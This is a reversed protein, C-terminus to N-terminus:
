YYFIPTKFTWLHLIKLHVEYLEDDKEYSAESGCSDDIDDKDYDDITQTTSNILTKPINYNCCINLLSNNSYTQPLITGDLSEPSQKSKFSM